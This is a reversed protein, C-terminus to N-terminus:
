RKYDEGYKSGFLYLGNKPNLLLEKILDLLDNKFNEINYFYCDYSVRIICYRDQLSNIEADKRKKSEFDEDGFISEFHLPGDFEVIISKSGSFIDIQRRKTKTTFIDDTLFHSKCDSVICKCFALLSKEPRSKWNSLLPKVCKEYHEEPHDKVWKALVNRGNRMIKQFAEPNEDRWRQLAASRNDQVDKRASTKIATESAKKRFADTKNLTGLAKSRREREDKDAMITKSIKEGAAARIRKIREPDREM